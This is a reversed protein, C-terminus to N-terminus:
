KEEGHERVAIQLDLYTGLRDLAKLSLGRQGNCFRSFAGTDIAAGDAIAGHSQELRDIIERIQDSLKKSRRKGM